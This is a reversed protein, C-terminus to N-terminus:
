QNPKLLFIDTFTEYNQRITDNARQVKYDSVLHQKCVSDKEYGIILSCDSISGQAYNCQSRADIFHISNSLHHGAALVMM